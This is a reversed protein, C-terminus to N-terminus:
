RAAGRAIRDIDAEAIGFDALEEPEYSELEARVTRFVRWRHYRERLAFLGQRVPATVSGLNLSRGISDMAIDTM